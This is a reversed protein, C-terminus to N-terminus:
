CSTWTCGSEPRRGQARRRPRRVTPGAALTAPQQQHRRLYLESLVSSQHSPLSPLLSGRMSPPKSARAIKSLTAAPAAAGGGRVGDGAAVVPGGGGAANDGVDPAVVSGLGRAM